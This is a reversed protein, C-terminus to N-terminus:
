SKEASLRHDDVSAFARAISKCYRGFRSHVLLAIMGSIALAFVSGGALYLWTADAIGDGLLAVAMRILLGLTVVLTSLLTMRELRLRKLQLEVDAYLLPVRMAATRQRERENVCAKEVWACSEDKSWTFTDLWRLTKGVRGVRRVYAVETTQPMPHPPMQLHKRFEAEDATVKVLDREMLARSISESLIGLPYALALLIVIAGFTSAGGIDLRLRHYFTENDWTTASGIYIGAILLMLGGIIFEVSSIIFASLSDSM